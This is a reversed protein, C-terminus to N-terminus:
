RAPPFFRRDLQERGRRTYYEVLDSRLERPSLAGSQWRRVLDAHRQRYQATADEAPGDDTTDKTNEASSQPDASTSVAEWAVAFQEMNGDAIEDLVQVVAAAKAASELDMHESVNNARALAKALWRNTTSAQALKQVIWQKMDPSAILRRNVLSDAFHDYVAEKVERTPDYLPQCAGVLSMHTSFFAGTPSVFREGISLGLTKLNEVCHGGAPLESFPFFQERPRETQQACLLLFGACYTNILKGKLSQGKLSEVRDTRFTLDFQTENGILSLAVNGMQEAVSRDTHRLFVYHLSRSLYTEVNHAPIRDGREPLDVIVFRRIGDSGVETTVVGVHTFLGPSLDTFRNYPSPNRMLLWDGNRLELSGMRYTEDMVGRTARQALWALMEAHREALFRDGSPITLSALLRRLEDATVPPTIDDDPANLRPNQPLGIHRIVEAAAVALEADLNPERVFDALDGLLQPARAERMLKLTKAKTRKPFPTGGTDPLPDFLVYSMTSAGSALGAETLTDLLSDFHQPSTELAYSATDIAESLEFQLRGSLDIVNFTIALYNRLQTRRRPANPLRVFQDRLNILGDLLRGVRQDAHILKGLDELTQEATRSELQWALDAAWNSLDQGNQAIAAVRREDCQQATRPVARELGALADQALVPTVCASLACVFLAITLLGNCLMALKARSM